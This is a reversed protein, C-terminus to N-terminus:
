GSNVVDVIKINNVMDAIESAVVISPQGMCSLRM